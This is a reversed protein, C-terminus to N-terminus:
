APSGKPLNKGPLRAMRLSTSPAGKTGFHYWEVFDQVIRHRQQDPFSRRVARIRRWQGHFRSEKWQPPGAGPLRSWVMKMALGRANLRWAEARVRQIFKPSPQIRRLQCRSGRWHVSAPRAIISPDGIRIWPKTTIGDRTPGVDWKLRVAHRTKSSLTTAAMPTQKYTAV